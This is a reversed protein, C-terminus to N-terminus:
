EGFVNFADLLKMVVNKCKEDVKIEDIVEGLLEARYILKKKKESLEALQDDIEKCFAEFCEAKDSAKVVEILTKQQEEVVNVNNISENMSDHMEELRYTKDEM